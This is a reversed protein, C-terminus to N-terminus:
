INKGLYQACSKPDQPIMKELYRTVDDVQHYSMDRIDSSYHSKNSGVSAGDGEDTLTTVDAPNFHRRFKPFIIIICM